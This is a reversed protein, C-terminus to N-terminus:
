RNDGVGQESVSEATLENHEHGDWHTWAECMCAGTVTSFITTCISSFCLLLLVSLMAVNKFKAYREIFSLAVLLTLILGLAHLVYYRASFIFWELLPPVPQGGSFNIYYNNIALASTYWLLISFWLIVITIGPVAM